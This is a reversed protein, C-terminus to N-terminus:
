VASDSAGITTRPTTSSLNRPMSPCCIISCCIAISIPSAPRSIAWSIISLALVLSPQSAAITLVATSIQPADFTKAWSWSAIFVIQSTWSRGSRPQPSVISRRKRDIAITNPMPKRSSVEINMLVTSAASARSIAPSNARTLVSTSPTSVNETVVTKKAAIKLTSGSTFIPQRLTSGPAASDATSNM